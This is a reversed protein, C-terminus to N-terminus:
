SVIPSTALKKLSEVMSSKDFHERRQGATLFGLGLLMNNHTTKPHALLELGPPTSVCYLLAASSSIEALVTRKVMDPEKAGV